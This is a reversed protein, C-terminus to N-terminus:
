SPSSIQGRMPWVLRILEIIVVSVANRIVVELSQVTLYHSKSVPDQRDTNLNASGIETPTTDGKYLINNVADQSLIILSIFSLVEIWLDRQLCVIAALLLRRLLFWVPELGM